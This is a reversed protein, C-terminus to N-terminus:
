FLFCFQLVDVLLFRSQSVQGEGGEEERGGDACRPRDLYVAAAVTLFLKMNSIILEAFVSSHARAFAVNNNWWCFIFILEDTKEKKASLDVWYSPIWTKKNKTIFTKTSQIM